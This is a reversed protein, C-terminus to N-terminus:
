SVLKGNLSLTASSARCGLQAVEAHMMTGEVRTARWEGDVVRAKTVRITISGSSSTPTGSCNLGLQASYGGSNM